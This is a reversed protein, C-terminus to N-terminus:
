KGQPLPTSIQDAEGTMFSFVQGETPTGNADHFTVPEVKTKQLPITFTKPIGNVVIRGSGGLIDTGAPIFNARIYVAHFDEMVQGMTPMALGDFGGSTMETDGRNAFDFYYILGEQHSMASSGAGSLRGYVGMRIDRRTDSNFATLIISNLTNKGLQKTSSFLLSGVSHVLPISEAKPDRNLSCEFHGSVVFVPKNFPDIETIEKEAEDNKERLVEIESFHHPLAIWEMALGIILVLEWLHAWTKQKSEWQDKNFGLTIVDLGSKQHFKRLNETLGFLAGLTVLSIGILDTWDWLSLSM